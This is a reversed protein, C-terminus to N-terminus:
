LLPHSIQAGNESDEEIQARRQLRTQDQHQMSGSPTAEHHSEAPTSPTQAGPAQASATIVGGTLIAATTTLALVHKRM